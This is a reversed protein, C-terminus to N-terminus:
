NRKLMVKNLRLLNENKTLHATTVYSHFFKSCVSKIIVVDANSAYFVIESCMGTRHQRKTAMYQKKYAAQSIRKFM